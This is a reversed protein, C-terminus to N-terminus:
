AIKESLYWSILFIKLFNIALFVISKCYLFFIFTGYVYYALYNLIFFFFVVNLMIKQAM